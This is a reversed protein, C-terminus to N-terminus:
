KQQEHKIRRRIQWNAAEPLPAGAERFYIQEGIRNSFNNVISCCGFYLDNLLDRNKGNLSFDGKQLKRFFLKRIFDNDKLTQLFYVCGAKRLVVAVIKGFASLLISRACVSKNVRESEIINSFPSIGCLNSLHRLFVETKQTLMPFYVILVDVDMQFINLLQEPTLQDNVVKEELYDRGWLACFEGRSRKFRVMSVARDFHERISLILLIRYGNDRIMKIGWGLLPDQYARNSIDALILGENLKKRIKEFRGLSQYLYGEKIGPFEVEPHAKLKQYIFTSGSRGPGISLLYDYKVSIKM